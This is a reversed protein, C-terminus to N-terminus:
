GFSQGAAYVTQALHGLSQTMTERSSGRAFRALYRVCPNETDPLECRELDFLPEPASM